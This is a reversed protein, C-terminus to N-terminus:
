IILLGSPGFGGGEAFGLALSAQALLVCKGKHDVDSIHRVSYLEMTNQGHLLGNIFRKPESISDISLTNSVIIFQVNATGSTLTLEACWTYEYGIHWLLYKVFHSVQDYTKHLNVGNL